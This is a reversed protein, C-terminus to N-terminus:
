PRSACFVLPLLLFFAPLLVDVGPITPARCLHGSSLRSLQFISREPHISELYQPMSVWKTAEAYPTILSRLQTDLDQCQSPIARAVIHIRDFVIRMEERTECEGRDGQENHTGRYRFHSVTKSQVPKM